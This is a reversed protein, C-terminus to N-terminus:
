NYRYQLRVSTRSIIVGGGSTARGVELHVRDAAADVVRHSWVTLLTQGEEVVARPLRAVRLCLLGILALTPLDVRGAGCGKGAGGEVSSIKIPEEFVFLCVFLLVYLSVLIM